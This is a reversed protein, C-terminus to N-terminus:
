LFLNREKQIDIYIFHLEKSLNRWFCIIYIYSTMFIVRFFTWENTCGPTCTSLPLIGGFLLKGTVKIQGYFLYNNHLYSFLPITWSYSNMMICQIQDWHMLFNLLSKLIKKIQEYIDSGYDKFVLMNHNDTHSQNDDVQIYIVLRNSNNTTVGTTVKIWNTEHMCIVIRM